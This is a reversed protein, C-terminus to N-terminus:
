KLIEKLDAIDQSTLNLKQMIKETKQSVEIKQAEKAAEISAINDLKAQEREATIDTFDGNFEQNIEEVTKKGSLDCVEKKQADDYFIKNEAYCISTILLVLIILIINKM